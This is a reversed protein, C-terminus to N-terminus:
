PQPTGRMCLYSLPLSTLALGLQISKWEHRIFNGADVFFKMWQLGLKMMESQQGAEVVYAAERVAPLLTLLLALMPLGIVLGLTLGRNRRLCCGLLYFLASWEVVYLAYRPLQRLSDNLTQQFVVWGDEGGVVDVSFVGPALADRLWLVLLGLLIQLVLLCLLTAVMGAWLALLNGLWVSFRSTGFRLLFRTSKGAVVLAVVLAITLTTGLDLYVGMYPYGQGTLGTLAVTLATIVAIWLLVFGLSRALGKYHYRLVGGLRASQWWSREATQQM